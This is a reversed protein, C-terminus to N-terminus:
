KIKHNIFWRIKRHARNILTFSSHHYTNMHFQLYKNYLSMLAEILTEFEANNILTALENIKQQLSALSSKIYKNELADDNKPYKDRTEWLVKELNMLEEHIKIAQQKKSYEKTIVDQVTNRGSKKLVLIMGLLLIIVVPWGVYQPIVPYMMQLVVAILAFVGLIVGIRLETSM